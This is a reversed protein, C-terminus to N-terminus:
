VDGEAQKRAVHERLKPFFAQTNASDVWEFFRTVKDGAENFHFILMYENAYPGIDTTATSRAWLVVNNARDDEFVENVEVKFDRFHPLMGAFFVEYAANDMAPRGLSKPLVQTICDDSRVAMIKEMTWSNYADIVALATQRRRSPASSSTPQSM